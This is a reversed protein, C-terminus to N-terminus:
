PEGVAAIAAARHLAWTAEHPKGPRWTRLYYKWSLSPESAVAPLGLPDTWLLLRAFATALVDNYVIASYANESPIELDKLLAAIVGESSPHKLVGRVGGGSEFQYFGHAPGGIQNRYKFKSEQLGITLLMTEARAGQMKVPLLALGPRVVLELAKEPTM